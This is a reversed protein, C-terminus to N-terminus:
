LGIIAKLVVHPAPEKSEVGNEGVTPRQVPSLMARRISGAASATDEGIRRLSIVHSRLDTSIKRSPLAPSYFMELPSSIESCSPSFSNMIVMIRKFNKFDVSDDEGIGFETRIHQIDEESVDCGVRILSAQIDSLTLKGANEIDFFRFAQWLNEEDLMKKRDLTAIMFDSYKIRGRGMFDHKQIIEEIEELAFNYGSGM